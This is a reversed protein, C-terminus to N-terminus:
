LRHMEVEKATLYILMIQDEKDLRQLEIVGFSDETKTVLFPIEEEGIKLVVQDRQKLKM